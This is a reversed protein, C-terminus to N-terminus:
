NRRLVHVIALRRLYKALSYTQLLRMSLYSIKGTCQLNRYNALEAREMRWMDASLGSAGYVPKYVAVLEVMLKVAPLPAGVIDLWLRHDEMHRVDQAFRMSINRKLMVSPTVFAHRLLLGAFTVAQVPSVADVVWWPSDGADSGLQRCLHGCLAVDPHSQMYALQIEVKRPHWADDSDLFALYTQTAAQWGANRAGAAGVNRKLPLLKIWGSPYQLSLEQLLERTGDGSADDILIVEAPVLTQGAVSAIARAITGSCRYCPIVVSVAASMNVNMLDEGDVLDPYAM